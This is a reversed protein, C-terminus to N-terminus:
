RRRKAAKKSTKRAEMEEVERRRKHFLEREEEAKADEELRSLRDLERRRSARYTHFDGSGAGACSGMVNNVKEPRVIGAGAAGAGPAASSSGASGKVAEYSLRVGDGAGDSHTQMSTYRGM